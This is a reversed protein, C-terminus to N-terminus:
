YHYPKHTILTYARYIQELLIAFTMEHTFTMPSLSLIARCAPLHERVFGFTGAILFTPIKTRNECWHEMITAFQLSCYQKGEPHLEIIFSHQTLLTLVKQTEIYKREETSYSSIADKITSLQINWTRAMRKRYMDGLAYWEGIHKGVHIIHLTCQM